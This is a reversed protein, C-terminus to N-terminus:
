SAENRRAADDLRKRASPTLTRKNADAAAKVDCVALHLLREARAREYLIVAEIAAQVAAATFTRESEAM